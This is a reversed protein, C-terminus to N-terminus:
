ASNKPNGDIGGQGGIRLSLKEWGKAWRELQHHLEFYSEVHFCGAKHERVLMASLFRNGEWLGTLSIQHHWGVLVAFTSGRGDELGNWEEYFRWATGNVATINLCCKPPDVVLGELHAQHDRDICVGQSPFVRIAERVVCLYGGDDVSGGPMAFGRTDLMTLQRGEGAELEIEVTGDVNTRPFAPFTSLSPHPPIYPAMGLWSAKGGPRELIARMLAATAGLRDEPEFARPDLTVGFLGMISFVMDVPRSSARFLASRWIAPARADFSEEYDRMANKLMFIVVETRREPPTTAESASDTPAGLISARFTLTPGGGFSSIFTVAPFNNLGLLERLPTIASEGQVLEKLNGRYLGVYMGAGHPWAYIVEVKPPALAEQLTWARHIWSTPEDIRVLRQIGGPFVLSVACCQYILFMHQIQWNKDAKSTQMICLRDLWLYSAKHLLAATCAHRLVDIGIPDGDLAGAISIRTSTTTKDVPNGRWIYTVAAYPTTNPAPLTPFELVTLHRNNLFQNCDILRFQEPTAFPTIDLIPTALSAALTALPVDLVVKGSQEQM